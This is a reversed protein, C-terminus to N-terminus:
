IEKTNWKLEESAISKLRRASKSIIEESAEKDENMEEARGIGALENALGEM